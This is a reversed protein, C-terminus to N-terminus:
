PANEKQRASFFKWETRAQVKASKCVTRFFALSLLASRNFKSVSFIMNIHSECCFPKAIERWMIFELLLVWRWRRHPQWLESSLLRPFFKNLFTDRDREKSGIIFQHSTNAEKNKKSCCRNFIAIPRAEISILSIDRTWSCCLLFLVITIVCVFCVCSAPLRFCFPFIYRWTSWWVYWFAINHARECRM